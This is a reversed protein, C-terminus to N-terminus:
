STRSLRSDGNSSPGRSGAPRARGLKEMLQQKESRHRAGKATDPGSLDYYGPGPAGQFNRRHRVTEQADGKPVTWSPVSPWHVRHPKESGDLHEYDGPGSPNYEKNDPCTISKLSGHADTRSDQIFSIRVPSLSDTLGGKSVEKWRDLVVDRDIRYQGLEINAAASQTRRMPPAGAYRDLRCISWRPQRQKEARRDLDPCMIRRDFM